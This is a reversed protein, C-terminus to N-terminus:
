EVKRNTIYESVLSLLKLDIISDFSLLRDQLDTVRDMKKRLDLITRRNNVMEKELDRYLDMNAEDVVEGQFKVIIEYLRSYTEIPFVDQLLTRYKHLMSFKNTVPLKSISQCRFIITEEILRCLHKTHDIEAFDFAEINKVRYEHLALDMMSIWFVKLIDSVMEGSESSLYSNLLHIFMKHLKSELSKYVEKYWIRVMMRWLSFRPVTPHSSKYYKEYADNMAGSFEKVNEGVIQISMNYNKWKNCYEGIVLIPDTFEGLYNGIFQCFSTFLNHFHHYLQLLPSDSYIAPKMFWRSQLLDFKDDIILLEPPIRFLTNNLSYTLSEPDIYHYAENLFNQFISFTNCCQFDRIMRLPMLCPKFLSFTICDILIFVGKDSGYKRLLSSLKFSAIRYAKLSEVTKENYFRTITSRLSIIYDEYQYIYCLYIDQNSILGILFDRLFPREAHKSHLYLVKCSIRINRYDEYELFSIVMRWVEKSIPRRDLIYEKDSCSEILSEM